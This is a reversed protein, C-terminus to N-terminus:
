LAQCCKYVCRFVFDVLHDGIGEAIEANGVGVRHYVHCVEVDRVESVM